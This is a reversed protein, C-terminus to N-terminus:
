SLLADHGRPRQRRLGAKKLQLKLCSFQVAGMMRSRQGRGRADCRMMGPHLRLRRKRDEVHGHNEGVRLENDRTLVSEAVPCVELAVDFCRVAKSRELRVRVEVLGDISEIASVDLREPKQDGLMGFQDM